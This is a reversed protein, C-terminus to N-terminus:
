STPRATGRIRRGLEFPDTQNAATWLQSFRDDPLASRAESLVRQTARIEIPAHQYELQQTLRDSVALCEIALIHNSGHLALEAWTSLLPILNWLSGTEEALRMGELLREAAADSDGDRLLAHALNNLAWALDTADNLKRMAEVAEEAAPVAERPRDTAVLISAINGASMAVSFLDGARLAELRVERSLQLSEELRDDGLALLALNGLAGLRATTVGHATGLVLARRLSHEAAEHRGLALQQNGLAMLADALSREDHESDFLGVSRQMQDLAVASDGADLHLVSANRLAVARTHDPTRPDGIVRELWRTAEVAHGRLRWFPACAAVLESLRQIDDREDLWALAVRIDPYWRELRDLWDPGQEGRFHHSADEAASILFASLADRVEGAAGSSQLREAAYERITELMSYRTEAGADARSLLSHELLEQLGDLVDVDTSIAEAAESTFPGAFVGLRAFLQQAPAALLEESWAIAARLTRQREPLDRAGGAALLPLRQALRQELEAIDFLRVRAAALEIALPLGDLRAAISAILAGTESTLSLNPQVLRAREVFLTVAPPPEPELRHPDGSDLPPVRYEHEGRVRLPARSTVLIHLDPARALWEAIVAAAGPLLQEVNDLVFLMRRSAVHEMLSTSVPVGAQERVGLTSAVMSAILEPNRISSLDVFWCGDRVHDLADAAAHLALRTKGIGGPGLLTILRHEAVLDRVAGLEVDRGIFSSIQIPLNHPRSDLSRLPPFQSRLQPHVLQYIHEPEGLDKLRHVGLDTLSAGTPLTDRVLDAALRSMLTQEGYALALLRAARFLPSGFYHAGRREVHGTHLAIRVAIRKIAGWDEAALGRHAEVAAAAAAAPEAFAAYVADGVTEFIVGGHRAVADDFLEHHRALADGLARGHQELLKTSGEVDSFLFAVTGSPLVAM